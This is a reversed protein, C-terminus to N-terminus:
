KVDRKNFTVCGLLGFISSFVGCTLFLKINELINFAYESRNKYLDLPSYSFIELFVKNDSLYVTMVAEVITNAIDYGFIFAVYIVISFGVSKCLHCIFICISDFFIFISISQFYIILLKLFMKGDFEEYFGLLLTGLLLCIISYITIMMIGFIIQTIYSSLFVKLRSHGAILKNRITGFSFEKCVMIISMISIVMAISSTPNFAGIFLQYGNYYERLYEAEEPSSLFGILYVLGFNFLSTVIGFIIIVILTIKFIKDKFIRLFDASLLNKM